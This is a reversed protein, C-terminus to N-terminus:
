TARRTFSPGAEGSLADHQLVNGLSLRGQRNGIGVGGGFYYLLRGNWPQPIHPNYRAGDYPALMAIAYIFRNITGVEVQVIYDVTLGDSTTTRALDPPRVARDAAAQVHRRHLPLLVFNAHPVSCYRSYGLLSATM